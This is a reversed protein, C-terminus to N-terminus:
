RLFGFYAYLVIILFVSGMAFSVWGSEKRLVKHLGEFILTLAFLSPLILIVYFLAPDQQGNM